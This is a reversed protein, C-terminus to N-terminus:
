VSVEVLARKNAISREYGSKLSETEHKGEGTSVWRVDKRGFIVVVAMVRNSRTGTLAKM